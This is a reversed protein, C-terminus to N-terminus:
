HNNIGKERSITVDHRPCSTNKREYLKNDSIKTSPCMGPPSSTSGPLHRQRQYLFGHSGEVTPCAKTPIPYGIAGIFPVRFEASPYSDPFPQQFAPGATQFCSSARIGYRSTASVMATWFASAGPPWPLVTRGLFPVQNLRSGSSPHSTTQISTPFVSSMSLKGSRLCRSSRPVSATRGYDLPPSPM